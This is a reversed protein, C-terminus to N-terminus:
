FIGRWRTEEAAAVDVKLDEPLLVATIRQTQMVTKGDSIVERQVTFPVLLVPGGLTQANGWGNAIDAAASSASVERDTLALNIFFLPIAMAITLAAIALFKLGPSRFVRSAAHAVDSM